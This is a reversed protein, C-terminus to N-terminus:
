NVKKKASAHRVRCELRTSAGVMFTKRIIVSVEPLGRSMAFVFSVPAFDVDDGGGVCCCEFDDIVVRWALALQSRDFASPVYRAFVVYRGLTRGQPRAVVVWLGGPSVKGGGQLLVGCRVVGRGRRERKLFWVVGSM